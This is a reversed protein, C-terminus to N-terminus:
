TRYGNVQCDNRIEKVRGELDRYRMAMVKAAFSVSKRVPDNGIRELLYRIEALYGAMRNMRGFEVPSVGLGIETIELLTTHMVLLEEPSQERRIAIEIDQLTKVTGSRHM